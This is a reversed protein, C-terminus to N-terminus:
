AKGYNVALKKRYGSLFYCAFALSLLLASLVSLFSFPLLFFESRAIAFFDLTQSIGM